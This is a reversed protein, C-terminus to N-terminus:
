SYLFPVDLFNAIKIGQDELDSFSEFFGSRVLVVYNDGKLCLNLSNGFKSILQISKIDDFKYCIEVRRNKGPFGWRFLRIIREKKNFENFGYGIELIITLIIYFSIFLGLLAYFGMVLGQPFFSIVFNDSISLDKFYSTYALILFYSSGFFLFIFWTFNLLNKSGLVKYRYIFSERM